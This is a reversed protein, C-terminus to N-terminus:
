PFLKIAYSEQLTAIQQPHAQIAGSSTLNSLPVPTTLYRALRFLIVRTNKQAMEDIESQLYVTRSGVEARIKDSDMSQFSQEVIGVVQITQDGSRYFYVVDGPGIKKLTSHCLYAKLIANGFPRHADWLTQQLELEPFLLAHYKPKIPVLLHQVGNVRYNHPGYLIHYDLASISDSDHNPTFSKIYVNEGKTSKLSSLAFGFRQFFVGIVEHHAFAEAYAKDAKHKHLYDFLVKLLLEGMKTGTEDVKFMCIKWICGSMGYAKEASENKLISVGKYSGDTRTIVFAKRNEKCCKEIWPEFSAAYDKRISDFISDRWNLQYSELEVVNPFARSEPPNLETLLDICGMISFAKDSGALSNIRDRLKRDETVFYDVALAFVSSAIQADIHDHTGSKVVGYKQIWAQHIPVPALERYKRLLAMRMASREVDRDGKAETTSLPHRFIEHDSKQIKDVLTIALDFDFEVDSPRTPELKILINTDFLFKM